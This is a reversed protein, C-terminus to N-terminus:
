NLETVTLLHWRDNAWYCNVASIYCPLLVVMNVRYPRWAIPHQLPSYSGNHLHLLFILIVNSQNTVTYSLIVWSRVVRFRRLMHGFHYRANPSRTQAGHLTELITRAVIQTEAFDVTGHRISWFAAAAPGSAAAKEPSGPICLAQRELSSAMFTYSYKEKKNQKRYPEESTALTDFASTQPFRLARKIYFICCLFWVKLLLFRLMM